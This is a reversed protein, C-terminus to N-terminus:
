NAPVLYEIVMTGSGATFATDSLVGVTIDDALTSTIYAGAGTIVADATLNAVAGETATVFGNPDDTDGYGGAVFEAGAGTFQTDVYLKCSLVFAGAPITASNELQGATPATGVETGVVKMVVRRVQSDGAVVVAAANTDVDRTGFGVNLGDKNTWINDRNAM